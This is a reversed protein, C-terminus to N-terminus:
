RIPQWEVITIHGTGELRKRFTERFRSALNAPPGSPQGAPVTDAATVFVSRNAKSADAFADGIVSAAENGRAMPAFRFSKALAPQAYATIDGNNQRNSSFTEEVVIDGQQWREAIVAAAGRSDPRPWSAIGVISAGTFAGVLVVSVVAALRSPLKLIAWSILILLAPLIYIENRALLFSGDQLLGSVVLGIPQILVVFVLIGAPSAIAEAVGAARKGSPKSALWSIAGALAFVLCLAILVGLVLGPVKALGVIPRGSLLTANMEWLTKASLPAVFKTFQVQEDSHGLQATFPGLWALCFVLGSALLGAALKLRAKPQFALAWIAIAAITFIATYHSLLAGAAAGAFAAWWWASGAPRLARLLFLACCTTLLCALAYPRAEVSFFVLLPACATLAGSLMGVREGAVQRGLLATVPIALTGALLAPLRIWQPSTGLKSSLWTVLFGLVPSNETQKVQDILSGFPRDHVLWRLSVEDLFISEDLASWLRLCFGAVTLAGLLLWWRKTTSAM